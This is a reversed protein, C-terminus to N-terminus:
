IKLEYVIRIKDCKYNKPPDFCYGDDEYECCGDERGCKKTEIIKANRPVEPLNTWMMLKEAPGIYGGQWHPKGRFEKLQVKTAEKLIGRFDAILIFTNMPPYTEPDEPNYIQWIQNLM